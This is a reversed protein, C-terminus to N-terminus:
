GGAIAPYDEIARFKSAYRSWGNAASQYGSILAAPVYIYGTGTAIKTGNLADSNELTAVQTPNRLILTDLNTAATFAKERIITVSPIDVVSLSICMYFAYKGIITVSKDRYETISRGIISDVLADDGVVDSTNIFEAM